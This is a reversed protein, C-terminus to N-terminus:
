KKIGREKKKRHFIYGTYVDKCREWVEQRPEEAQQDGDSQRESFGVQTRERLEELEKKIEEITTTLSIVERWLCGVDHRMSEYEPRM